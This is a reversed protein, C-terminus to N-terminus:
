LVEQSLREVAIRAYAESIEIGVAQLGLIKAVRLTTGSGMFPDLVVWGPETCLALIRAVLREPLPCPHETKELSVNKVQDIDDWWEYLSSGESGNALAAVIRKDDMNRYPQKIRSYDPKVGYYNILRFRRSFNAHYCWASVHHPPGLAPVVYRMMEEPYHSIATRPFRRLLALLAVYDHEPLSDGYGDYGSFGINYPPDTAVLDVNTISPLIDRADGLYITIGAHAYFPTIGAM